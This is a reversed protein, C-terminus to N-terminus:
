TKEKQLIGNIWVRTVPEGRLRRHLDAVYSLLVEILGRYLLAQMEHVCQDTDGPSRQCDPM